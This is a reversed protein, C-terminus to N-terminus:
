EGELIEAIRDLGFDFGRLAKIIEATELNRLNYHRYGTDREVFAPVLLGKEHYFRLTKLGLGSMRSFEGISHLHDSMKTLLYTVAELLPLTM